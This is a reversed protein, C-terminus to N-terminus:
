FFFLSNDQHARSEALKGASFGLKSILVKPFTAPARRSATTFLRSHTKCANMMHMLNILTYFLKKSAHMYLLPGKYEHRHQTLM